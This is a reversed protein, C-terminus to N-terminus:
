YGETTARVNRSFDVKDRENGERWMNVQNKMMATVKM